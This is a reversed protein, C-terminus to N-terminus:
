QEFESMLGRGIFILSKNHLFIGLLFVVNDHEDGSGQRGRTSQASGTRGDHQPIRTYGPYVHGVQDRDVAHVKLLAQGLTMNPYEPIDLTYM